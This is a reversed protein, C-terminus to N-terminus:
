PKPNKAVRRAVAIRPVKKKKLDELCALMNMPMPVYSRIENAAATRADNSVVMKGYAQGIWAEESRGGAPGNYDTCSRRKLKLITASNGKFVPRLSLEDLRIRDTTIGFLGKQIAAQKKFLDELGNEAVKARFAAIQENVQINTSQAPVAEALVDRM